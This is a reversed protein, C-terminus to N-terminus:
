MDDWNHYVDPHQEEEHRRLEEERRIYEMRQWHHAEDERFDRRFMGERQFEFMEDKQRQEARQQERQFELQEDRRRLEEMRAHEQQRLVEEQLLQKQRFEEQRREDELRQVEAFRQREAAQAQAYQRAMEAAAAAQTHKHREEAYSRRQRGKELAHMAQWPDSKWLAFAVKLEVRHAVSVNIEKFLEDLEIETAHSITVGKVKLNWMAVACQIREDSEDTSLVQFLLDIHFLHFVM